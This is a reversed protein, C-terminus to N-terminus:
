SLNCGAVLAIMGAIILIVGVLITLLVRATDSKVVRNVVFAAAVFAGPVFVCVFLLFMRDPSDILTGRTWRIVDRKM